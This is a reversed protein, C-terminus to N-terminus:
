KLLITPEDKEICGQIDEHLRAILDRQHALDANQINVLQHNRLVLDLYNALNNARRSDRIAASLITEDADETEMSPVLTRLIEATQTLSRVNRDIMEFIDLVQRIWDYDGRAAPFNEHMADEITRAQMRVTRYLDQLRSLTQMVAGHEKVIPASIELVTNGIQLKDGPNVQATEDIKIQNIKIAAEPKLARATWRREQRELVMHHGSVRPDDIALHNGILKRGIRLLPQTIPLRHRIVSSPDQVSIEALQPPEHLFFVLTYTDLRLYDGARMPKRGSVQEGNLYTLNVSGQDELFWEGNEDVLRVHKKSVTPFNLQLTCEPARGIVVETADTEFAVKLAKNILIM